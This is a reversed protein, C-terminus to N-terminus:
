PNVNGVIPLHNGKMPNLMVEVQADSRYQMGLTRVDELLQNGIVSRLNPRCNIIVVPWLHSLV